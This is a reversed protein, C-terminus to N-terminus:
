IIRITLFTNIAIDRVKVSTLRNENSRLDRDKEEIGYVTSSQKTVSESNEFHSTPVRPTRVTLSLGVM